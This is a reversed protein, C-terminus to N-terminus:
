YTLGAWIKGLLTMRKTAVVVQNRKDWIRRHNTPRNIRYLSNCEGETDLHKGTRLAEKAATLNSTFYYNDWVGNHDFQVVYKAREYREDSSLTM